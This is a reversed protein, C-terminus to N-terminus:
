DSFPFALYSIHPNVTLGLHRLQVVEQSVLVTWGISAGEQIEPIVTCDSVFFIEYESEVLQDATNRGSALVTIGIPVEGRSRILSPARLATFEYTVTNGDRFTGSFLSGPFVLSVSTEQIEISDVVVPIPDNGIPDSCSTSEIGPDGSLINNNSCNLSFDFTLSFSSPQCACEDVGLQLQVPPVCLLFVALVLGCRFTGLAMITVVVFDSHVTAVSM